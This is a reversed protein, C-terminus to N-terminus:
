FPGPWPTAPGGDYQTRLEANAWRSLAILEPSRPLLLLDGSACYEDVAALVREVRSLLEPTGEAMPVRSDCRDRGEDLAAQREANIADIISGFRRTFLDALEVLQRPAQHVDDPQEGTGILLLQFERLLAETHQQQESWLRLPYDRLVATGRIEVDDVQGLM